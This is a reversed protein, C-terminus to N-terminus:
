RKKGKKGKQVPKLTTGLMAAIAQMQVRQESATQKKDQSRILLSSLEPFKKPDCRTLVAVHWALAM